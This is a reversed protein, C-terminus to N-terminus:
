VVGGTVFPTAVAPTEEALARTVWRDIAFRLLHSWPVQYTDALARGRQVLDADLRIAMHVPYTCSADPTDPTTPDALYELLAYRVLQSRARLTSTALEALRHAADSRLRLTTVPATTASM